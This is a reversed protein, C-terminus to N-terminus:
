HIKYVEVKQSKFDTRILKRFKKGSRVAHLLSLFTLKQVESFNKLICKTKDSSIKIM